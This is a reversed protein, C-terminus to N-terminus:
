VPAVPAMADGVRVSGPRTVSCMVGFSGGAASQIQALIAPDVALDRQAIVTFACRTCPETVM